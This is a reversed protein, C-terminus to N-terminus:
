RPLSYALVDHGGPKVHSASLPVGTATVWPETLVPM